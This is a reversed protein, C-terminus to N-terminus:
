EVVQFFGLTRRVYKTYVDNVKTDMLLVGDPKRKRILPSSSGEKGPYTGAGLLKVIANEHALQPSKLAAEEGVFSDLSPSTQSVQNVM